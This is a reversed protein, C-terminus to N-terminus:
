TFHELLEQRTIVCVGNGGRAFELWLFPVSPFAKELALDSNGVELVLVGQETLYDASQALIKRAIDLGDTGAALAMVPEHHYEAPMSALDEADVYPPNSVILDYRGDVRAFLDSEIAKVSATLQHRQINHEALALAEPSLEVLDVQSGLHIACAIGICGSGACLDLVSTPQSSLWPQFGQDILEAIPSRPIIVREDVTFPLGAFWAENTLYALPIREHCRTEILQLVLAREAETIRTDAFTDILEIPLHLFHAILGRAEDYANDTGHGFYLQAETFRSVALGLLDKVYFLEQTIDTKDPM